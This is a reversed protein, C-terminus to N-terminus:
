CLTTARRNEIIDFNTEQLSEMDQKIKRRDEKIEYVNLENSEDMQDFLLKKLLLLRKNNGERM